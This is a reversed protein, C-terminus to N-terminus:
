LRRSQGGDAYFSAGPTANRIQARFTYRVNDVRGALFPTDLVLRMKSQFHYELCGGSSRSFVLYMGNNLFAYDDGGTISIFENAYQNDLKKYQLRLLNMGQWSVPVLYVDSELTNAAPTGQPVGESFIFPVAVGDILLYQGNLMAIRLEGAERADQTVPNGATGTTCRYTAYQCAWQEVISRFAEQRGVWAFLVGEMGVVSARQKAAYYVDHFTQVINRGDGGAITAGVDVGFTEVISDAAPCAISTVADIYGTKIQNDLGSPEAIWGIETATSAQTNSGTILVNELTRELDIGIKFFELRAQSMTDDLRWMIDPVLPNQIPAANLIDRPVDRRDRREGLDAIPVLNTKIYYKGFKFIQQCVKLDGVGPPNGCFDVANTGASATQGTLIEYIEDTFETPEPTLLRALSFPRPLASFMEPRVGAAGFVGFVNGLSGFGHYVHGTQVGTLTTSAPDHKQEYGGKVGVSKLIAEIEDLSYMKAKSAKKNEM